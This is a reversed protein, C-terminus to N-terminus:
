MSSWKNVEKRSMETWCIRCLSASEGANASSVATPIRQIHRMEETRCERGCDDCYTMNAGETSSIPAVGMSEPSNM